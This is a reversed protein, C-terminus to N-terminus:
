AGRCINITLIFETRGLFDEVGLTAKVTVGGRLGLTTTYGTDELSDCIIEHIYVGFNSVVDPSELKGATPLEILKCWTAYKLQEKAGQCYTYRSLDELHVVVKFIERSAPIGFVVQQSVSEFPQNFDVRSAGSICKERSDWGESGRVAEFLLDEPQVITKLWVCPRATSRPRDVDADVYIMRRHLKDFEPFDQLQTLFFNV